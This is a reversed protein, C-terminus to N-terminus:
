DALRAIAAKIVDAQAAAANSALAAQLVGKLAAVEVQRLQRLMDVDEGYLSEDDFGSIRGSYQVQGEPGVTLSVKHGQGLQGELRLNMPSGEVPEASKLQFLSFDYPGQWRGDAGYIVSTDADARKQFDLLSESKNAQFDFVKIDRLPVNVAKAMRVLHGVGEGRVYEAPVPQRLYDRISQEILGREASGRPSIEALRAFLSFVRADAKGGAWDTLAEAIDHKGGLLVSLSADNLQFIREDFIQRPDGSLEGLPNGAAFRAPDASSPAPPTGQVRFHGGSIRYASEANLDPGSRGSKHGYADNRAAGAATSSRPEVSPKVDQTKTPAVTDTRFASPVSGAKELKKM